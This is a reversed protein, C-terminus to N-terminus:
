KKDGRIFENIVESVRQGLQEAGDVMLRRLKATTTTSAQAPLVKIKGYYARLKKQDEKGFDVTTQSMILVDPKVAKILGHFHEGVHRVTVIDVARLGALIEIRDEFKDFPRKPGKRMKTLEDSDVGVILIDGHCKAEELYRKHGVHFLDYV